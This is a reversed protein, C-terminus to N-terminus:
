KFSKGQLCHHCIGWFLVPGPNNTNEAIVTHRRSKGCPNCFKLESWNRATRKYLRPTPIELIVDDHLVDTAGAMLEADLTNWPM